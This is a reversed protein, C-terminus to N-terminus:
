IIGLLRLRSARGRLWAERQTLNWVHQYRGGVSEAPYSGRTAREAAVLERTMRVITEM